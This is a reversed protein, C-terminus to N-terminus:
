GFVLDLACCSGALCPSEQGGEEEEDGDDEEDEDLDPAGVVPVEDAVPVKYFDVNAVDDRGRDWVEGEDVRNRLRQTQVVEVLHPQPAEALPVAILPDRKARPRLRQVPEVRHFNQPVLQERASRTREGRCPYFPSYCSKCPATLRGELMLSMRERILIADCTMNPRNRVDAQREKTRMNRMGMLMRERQHVKRMATRAKRLARKTVAADTMAVTMNMMKRLTMLPTLSSLIPALTPMVMNANMHTALAKAM